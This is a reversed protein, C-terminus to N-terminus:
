LLSKWPSSDRSRVGMRASCVGPISLVYLVFMERAATRSSHYVRTM